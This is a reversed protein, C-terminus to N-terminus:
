KRRIFFLALIAVVALVVVVPILTDTMSPQTVTITATIQQTRTLITTTTHTVPQTVTTTLSQIQTHVSTTTRTVPQTVSQTVTLTVPQIITTTLTPTPETGVIKPKYGTIQAVWEIFTWPEYDAGHEGEWYIEFNVSKGANELAIALNTWMTIAAHNDKSGTRIWWYQSIHPWDQKIFYMPNMMNIIQRLEPDICASPDGTDWKVCFDTFHRAPVTENGFLLVEPTLGLAFVDGFTLKEPLTLNEPIHLVDFAPCGKMRSIGYELYENWTFSATQTVPDWMIWSNRQLYQARHPEPLAKIYKIAAPILYNKVIYKEYAEPTALLEGNRDLLNLERLYEPWLSRLMQSITQNVLSGTPLPKLGFEWEYMMDAHELDTIPCYPAAAFVRDSAEAAGLQQLYPEYLPSDGSAALLASLAGGASTGIPIIWEENGPFTDSNYRMYRIVAKLDVIAAPAKGYWTGNSFRCDWGRVGPVAVVYGAALALAVREAGTVRTAFGTVNDVRIVVDNLPIGNEGGLINSVSFYGGVNIVLIIPANSVDIYTNNVKIPVVVDMSQYNPNVPKAVYPIHHYRKFVVTTESFPTIVKITHLTYDNVPFRLPDVNSSENTSASIVSASTMTTFASLILAFVM